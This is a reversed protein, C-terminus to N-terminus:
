SNNNGDINNYCKKGEKDIKKVIVKKLVIDSVKLNLKHIADEKNKALLYYEKHGPIVIVYLKRKTKYEEKM